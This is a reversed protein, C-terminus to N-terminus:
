FSAQMGAASVVPEIEHLKFNIGYLDQLPGDHLDQALRLREAEANDMLRRQVEALEAEMQRRETIDQNVAVAATVKGQEDKIPLAWNIITRRKGEFTLIDILANMSTEGRNLARSLAWDENKIRQNTGSWWAIYDSYGEQGVHRVGSWIAKGAPNSYTIKGNKDTVWVGVPLVELVSYLLAEQRRAEEEAKKRETIDDVLMVILASGAYQESFMSVTAMGWM